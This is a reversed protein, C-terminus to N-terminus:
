SLSWASHVKQTTERTADMMIKFEEYSIKNGSNSTIEQFLEKIQDGTFLQGFSSKLDEM